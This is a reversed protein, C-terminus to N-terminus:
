ISVAQRDMAHRGEMCLAAMVGVADTLEPLSIARNFNGLHPGSVLEIDAAGKEQKLIEAAPMGGERLFTTFAVEDMERQDVARLIEVMYRDQGMESVMRKCLHKLDSRLAPAERQGTFGEYYSNFIAVILRELLDLDFLDRADAGNGNPDLGVRLPDASRFYAGAVLLFSLFHTGVERFLAQSSGCHPELHEFDRLGSVGFNPFACSTLWRDLRGARFWQYRGADHRRGRQIRNHFLPIPATHLIGQSALVGMQHANRSMVAVLQDHDPRHQPRTDNPYSFYTGQTKFAIAVLDPHIDLRGPHPPLRESHSPGNGNPPIPLDKLRFLATGNMPLLSPIHADTSILDSRDALHGLWYAEQALHSGDTSNRALKIAVLADSHRCPLILTRGMFYPTDAAKIGAMHLLAACDLEPLKARPQAVPDPPSPRPIKAPLSGLAEAAARLAAGEATMLTEHLGKHALNAAAPAAAKATYVEALTLAAQKLLFYRQRATPFRGPDTLLENLAAVTDRTLLEPRQEAQLLLENVAMYAGTFEISLSQRLPAGSGARPPSPDQRGM